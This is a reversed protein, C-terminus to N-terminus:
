ACADNLKRRMVSKRLKLDFKKSTEQMDSKKMVFNRVENTAEGCRVMQGFMEVNVETDNFRRCVRLLQEKIKEQDMSIHGVGTVTM